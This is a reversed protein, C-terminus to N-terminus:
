DKNRRVKQQAVNTKPLVSFNLQILRPSQPLDSTRHRVIDSGFYSIKQDAQAYSGQDSNQKRRLRALLSALKKGLLGIFPAIISLTFRPFQTLAGIVQDLTALVSSCASFIRDRRSDFATSFRIAAFCRLRLPVLIALSPPEQVPGSPAHMSFQTPTTIPIASTTCTVTRVISKM